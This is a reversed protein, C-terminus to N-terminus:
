SQEELNMERKQSQILIYLVQNELTRLKKKALKLLDDYVEPRDDFALTIVKKEIAPPAPKPKPAKKKITKKSVHGRPNIKMKVMRSSIVHNSVGLYNGIITQNLEGFRGSSLEKIIQDRIKQLEQVNYRKSKNAIGTRLKEPTIGVGECTQKIYQRIPDKLLNSSIKEATEYNELDQIKKPLDETKRVESGGGHGELEIHESVSSSRSTDIAHVYELRKECNKCKECNKDGGALHHDCELCPNTLSTKL